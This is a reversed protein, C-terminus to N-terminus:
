HFPTHLFCRSIYDSLLFGSVSPSVGIGFWLTWGCGDLGVGSGVWCGTFDTDPIRGPRLFVPRPTSRGGVDLASIFPLTSTGVVQPKMAQELSREITGPHGRRTM